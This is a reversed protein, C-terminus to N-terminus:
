EVRGTMWGGSKRVKNEGERRSDGEKRRGKKLLGRQFSKARTVFLFRLFFFLLLADLERYEYRLLRSQARSDSYKYLFNELRLSNLHELRLILHKQSSKIRSWIKSVTKLFSIFSPFFFSRDFPRVFSRSDVLWGNMWVDLGLWVCM